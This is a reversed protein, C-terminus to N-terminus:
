KSAQLPESPDLITTGSNQLSWNKRQLVKILVWDGPQSRCSVQYVDNREKNNVIM